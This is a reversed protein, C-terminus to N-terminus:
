RGRTLAKRLLCLIVDSGTERWSRNNLLNEKFLSAVDFFCDPYPLALLVKSGIAFLNQIFNDLRGTEESESGNPLGQGQEGTNAKCDSFTSLQQNIFAALSSEVYLKNMNGTPYVSNKYKDGM